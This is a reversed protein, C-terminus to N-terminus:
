REWGSTIFMSKKRECSNVTNDPKRLSLYIFRERLSFRRSKMRRESIQNRITFDNNVCELMYKVRNVQLSEDTMFMCSGVPSENVSVCLSLRRRGRQGVVEHKM